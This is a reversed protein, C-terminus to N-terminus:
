KKGWKDIIFHLGLYFLSVVISLYVILVSVRWIAQGIGIGPYILIMPVLVFYIALVICFGGLVTWKNM